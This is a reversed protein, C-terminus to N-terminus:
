KLFADLNRRGTILDAVTEQDLAPWDAPVEPVQPLRLRGKTADVGQARVFRADDGTRAIFDWQPAAGPTTKIVKRQHQSNLVRTTLADPDWDTLALAHLEALVAAFAADEALNNLESPDADLDYLLAPHGHTYIFKFRGKRVMRCPVCPGIALYDSIAIDPWADADGEMLPLVSRGALDPSDAGALDLFTPLLDVLSVVMDSRGGGAIGPVSAIFPVHASCEWFTQKFWMGREGLMEGHDSVFFVATNDRQGTKELTDLIRGVKDDVYSIMGYYAHRAAM